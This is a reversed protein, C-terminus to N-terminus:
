DEKLWKSDPLTSRTKNMAEYRHNKCYNSRRSPTDEGCILCKNPPLRERGKPKKKIGAVYAKKLSESRKKNSEETVIQKSRADRLKEKHEESFTRGKNAESIKQKTEESCPGLPVGRRKEGSKQAITKANPTASWHTKKVTCINYYRTKIEEPKIRSLFRHEEEFMTKKDSINSILIKRKFDEPRKKYAKMMWSSSCIYGDNINGWHAGIYFRKQFKDYWIYVFGYQDNKM